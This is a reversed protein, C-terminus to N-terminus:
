LFDFNTSLFHISSALWDFADGCNSDFVDQGHVLSFKQFKCKDDIIVIKVFCCHVGTTHVIPMKQMSVLVLASIQPVTEVALVGFLGDRIFDFREDDAFLACSEFGAERGLVLVLGTLSNLELMDSIIREVILSTSACLALWRVVQEVVSAAIVRELVDWDDSLEFKEFLTLCSLRRVSLVLLAISLLVLWCDRSVLRVDAVNNQSSPGIAAIFLFLNHIRKSFVACRVITQVGRNYWKLALFIHLISVSSHGIDKLFDKAQM